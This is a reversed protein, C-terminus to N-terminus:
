GVFQRIEEPTMTMDEDEDAPVFTAPKIQMLSYSAFLVVFAAISWKRHDWAAILASAGVLGKMMMNFWNKKIFLYTKFFFTWVSSAFDYIRAKM